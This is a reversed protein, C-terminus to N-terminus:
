EWNTLAANLRLAQTTQEMDHVRLIQAGQGAGALAVALSGPVRAAPEEAGGVTGIFRKRSAGLLLVCGLGHLLSLGRILALNHTVTKGFGIGPDLIVRARPIGAAEAAALRGALFDYVDLLVHGYRPDRQMTEPDGQAHMLCIPAEREAALAAMGGDYTLAAVDNLMVAGAELAARAVGTKRTDISIPVEIEPAIARILPLCRDKEEAEPVEAAGPRTSEGGVDLIEAGAAVLRRAQALAAEPDLFRGGDSFSDPTVNVIGMTRPRSWNLGAIPARPASLRELWADPVESLPVLEGGERTMREARDFWCWGGALPLAARPRAPDTMPIPRYYVDM